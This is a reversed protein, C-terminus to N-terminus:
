LLKGQLREAIIEPRLNPTIPKSLPTYVYDKGYATERYSADFNWGQKKLDCIIAGLRTIYNKLAENRTVEGNHQLQALVWEEQTSSRSM